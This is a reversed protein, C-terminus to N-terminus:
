GPENSHDIIQINKAIRQEKYPFSSQLKGYLMDHITIDWRTSASFRFECIAESIPPKQYTKTM